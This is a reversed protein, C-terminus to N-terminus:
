APEWAGWRWQAGGVDGRPVVLPVAVGRRHNLPSGVAANRAPVAAPAGVREGAVGGAATRFPPTSALRPSARARWGIDHRPRDAKKLAALPFARAPLFRPCISCCIVESTLRIHVASAERSHWSQKRDTSAATRCPTLQPDYQRSISTIVLASHNSCPPMNADRPQRTWSQNDPLVTATTEGAQTMSAYGSRRQKEELTLRERKQTRRGGQKAGRNSDTMAERARAAVRPKHAVLRGCRASEETAPTVM